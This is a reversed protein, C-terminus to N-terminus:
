PDEGARGTRSSARERLQGLALPIHQLQEGAALVAVIADRSDSLLLVTRLWRGLM